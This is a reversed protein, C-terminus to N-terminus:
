PRHVEKEAIEVYCYQSGHYDQLRALHREWSAPSARQQWSTDKLMINVLGAAAKAAGESTAHVKSLLGRCMSISQPSSM